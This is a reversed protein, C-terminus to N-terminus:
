IQKIFFCFLAVQIITGLSEKFYARSNSIRIFNFVFDKRLMSKPCLFKFLHM